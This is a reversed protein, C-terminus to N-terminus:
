PPAKPVSSRPRQMRSPAAPTRWTWYRPLVLADAILAASASLVELSGPQCIAIHTERRGPSSPRRSSGWVPSFRSSCPGALNVLGPPASSPGSTWGALGVGALLVLPLLKLATLINSAQAGQVVGRLNIAALAGIFVTITLTRVATVGLAPWLGTGYDLMIAAVAGFSALRSLYM